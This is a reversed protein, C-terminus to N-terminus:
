EGLVNGEQGDGRCLRNRNHIINGPILSKAM